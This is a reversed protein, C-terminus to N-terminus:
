WVRLLKTWTLVKDPGLEYIHKEFWERVSDLLYETALRRGYQEAYKSCVWENELCTSSEVYNSNETVFYRQIRDMSEIVVALDVMNSNEPQGDIPVAESPPDNLLVAAFITDDLEKRRIYEIIDLYSFSNPVFVRMTQYILM